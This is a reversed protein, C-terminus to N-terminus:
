PFAETQNQNSIRSLGEAAFAEHLVPMSGIRNAPLPVWRANLAHSEDTSLSQM